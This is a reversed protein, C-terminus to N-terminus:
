HFDSGLIDFKQPSFTARRRYSGSHRTHSDVARLSLSSLDILCLISGFYTEYHSFTANVTNIGGTGAFGATRNNIYATFARNPSSMKVGLCLTLSSFVSRREDKQSGRIVWTELDNKSFFLMVWVPVLFLIGLDQLRTQMSLVASALSLPLFVAALVTLIITSSAQRSQSVTTNLAFLDQHRTDIRKTHKMLSSCQLSVSRVQGEFDSVAGGSVVSSLNIKRRLYDWTESVDEAKEVMFKIRNFSFIRNEMAQFYDSSISDTAKTLDTTLKPKIERQVAHELESVDNAIIELLLLFVMDNPSLDRNALMRFYPTGHLLGHLFTQQCESPNTPSYVIDCCRWIMTARNGDQSFSYLKHQVSRGYTEERDHNKPVCSLETFTFIADADELTLKQESGTAKLSRGRVHDRGGFSEHNQFIASHRPIWQVLDRLDYPCDESENAITYTEQRPATNAPLGGDGFELYDKLACLQYESRCIFVRIIGSEHAGPEAPTSRHGEIRSEESKVVSLDRIRIDLLGVHSSDVANRRCLFPAPKQQDM